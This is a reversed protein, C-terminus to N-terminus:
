ASGPRYTTMSALFESFVNFDGLKVQGTSSPSGSAPPDPTVYKHLGGAAGGPGTAVEWAALRGRIVGANSGIVTLNWRKEACKVVPDADAIDGYMLAFIASSSTADLGSMLTENIHQDGWSYGCTVLVSSVRSVCIGLRDMLALYPMKRSEDYKLHSPLIMSGNPVGDRRVTGSLEAAWNM